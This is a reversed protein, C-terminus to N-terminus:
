GFDFGIITIFLSLLLLPIVMMAILAVVISASLNLFLLDWQSSPM